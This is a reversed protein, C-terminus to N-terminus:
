HTMVLVMILGEGRELGELAKGVIAGECRGAEACLMAYGPRSSVTLLNGPRIAGNETTAKVPVRGLLAMIPRESFGRKSEGSSLPPNLPTNGLVFGPETTIVGAVRQSNTRAKRYHWPRSPDLEVVDGPEVPESADIREALDAGGPIFSGDAYVNGTAREVRFVLPTQTPGNLTLGAAAVLDFGDGAGGSYAAAPFSGDLSINSAKVLAYGDDVGGMYQARLALPQCCFLLSVIFFIMMFKM